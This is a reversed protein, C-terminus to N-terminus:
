KYREIQKRHRRVFRRADDACAAMAQEVGREGMISFLGKYGRAMSGAERLRRAGETDGYVAVAAQVEIEHSMIEMERRASRSLRTLILNFPNLKHLAEYAEQAWVAAPQPADPDLIVFGPWNTGNAGKRSARITIPLM